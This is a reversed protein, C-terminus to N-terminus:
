LRGAKIDKKILQGANVGGETFVSGQNQWPVAKEAIVGRAGLVLPKGTFPCLIESWPTMRARFYRDPSYPSIYLDFELQGPIAIAWGNDLIYDEPNNSHFPMKENQEETYPKKHHGLETLWFQEIAVREKHYYGCGTLGLSLSTACAALVAWLALSWLNGKTKMKGKEKQITTNM